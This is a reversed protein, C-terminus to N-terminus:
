SVTSQLKGFDLPAGAGRSKRRDDPPYGLMEEEASPDGSLDGSEGSDTISDVIFEGAEGVTLNATYQGGPACEGLGFEALQEPTLTLTPPAAPVTADGPPPGPLADALPFEEPIAPDTM